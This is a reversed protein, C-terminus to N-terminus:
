SELTTREPRMKGKVTDERGAPTHLVIEHREEQEGKLLKSGFCPQPSQPPM